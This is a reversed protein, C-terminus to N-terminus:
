KGHRMVAFRRLGISDNVGKQESRTEARLDRAPLAERRAEGLRERAASASPPHALPRRSNAGAVIRARKRLARFRM